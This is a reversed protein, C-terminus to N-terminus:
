SRTGCPPAVTGVSARAGNALLLVVQPHTGETPTEIGPILRGLRAPLRGGGWEYVGNQLWGVPPRMGGPEYGAQGVGGTPRLAPLQYWVRRPLAATPTATAGQRSIECARFRM